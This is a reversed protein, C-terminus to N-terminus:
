LKPFLPHLKQRNSPLELMKRTAPLKTPHDILVQIMLPFRNHTPWWPVILIGTSQDRIIELISKDIMSFPPFAYIVENKWSFNFADVIYCYPDPHWSVYRELQKNLHCAITPTVSFQKVIKQFLETCLQQETNDNFSRSM